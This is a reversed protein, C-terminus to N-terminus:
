NESEMDGFFSDVVGDGLIMFFEDYSGFDIMVGKNNELGIVRQYTSELDHVSMYDCMIAWCGDVNDASGIEHQVEDEDLFYVKM